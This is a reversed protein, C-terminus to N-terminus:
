KKDLFTIIKKTVILLVIFCTSLVAFIGVVQLLGILYEM